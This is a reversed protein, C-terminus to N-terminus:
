ESGKETLLWVITFPGVIVYISQGGAHYALSVTLPLAITRHQRAPHFNWGLSLRGLMWIGESVVGIM